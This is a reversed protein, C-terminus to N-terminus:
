TRCRKSDEEFALTGHDGAPRNSFVAVTAEFSPAHHQAPTRGVLARFESILHAQDYYGAALAAESWHPREVGAVARLLKRFRVIRAFRKPGLGVADLFRRRLQRQSLGLTSALEAVPVSAARRELHDVASSVCRDPAMGHVRRELVAIMAALRLEPPLAALSEQLADAGAWLDGLAAGGDTLESAPCGLLPAAAGPRFRVAVRQPTGANDATQWRSMTGVVDLSHTRGKAEERETFIWDICGDPLIRGSSADPDHSSCWFAEVWPRLAAPPAFERYFM